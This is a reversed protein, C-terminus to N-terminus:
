FRCCVNPLAGECFTQQLNQRFVATSKSAQKIELVWRWARAGAWKIGTWVKGAAAVAAERRIPTRRLVIVIIGCLSLIIILPGLFSFM